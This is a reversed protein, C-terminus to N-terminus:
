PKTTGPCCESWPRLDVHIRYEVYPSPIYLECKASLAEKLQVFASEMEPMWQICNRERPVRCRGKRGDVGPVHEYKGQLSTMLPAAINSIKMIYISYWIVVRLFGKMQKPTKPKPWNHVEDLKSPAPSRMRGHLVHGCYRIREMFVHCKEFRVELHCEELKEFLKVVNEFHDKLYAKSDRIKGKGCLKRRTRTLLDNTYIHAHPQLSRLCDTMMRQFAQPGVKVGM